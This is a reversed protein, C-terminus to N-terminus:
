AELGLPNWQHSGPVACCQPRPAKPCRSSIQALVVAPSHCHSLLENLEQRTWSFGCLQPQLSTQASSFSFPWWFHGNWVQCLDFTGAQLVREGSRFKMKASIKCLNRSKLFHGHLLRDQIDTSIIWLNSYKLSWKFFLSYVLSSYSKGIYVISPGGCNNKDLTFLEGFIFSSSQVTYEKGKWM